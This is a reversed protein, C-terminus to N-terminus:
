EEEDEVLEFQDSILRANDGITKLERAIADVFTQVESNARAFEPVLAVEVVCRYDEWRLHDPISRSTGCPCDLFEYGFRRVVRMTGGCTSCGESYEGLPTPLLPTIATDPRPEDKKASGDLFGPCDNCWIALCAGGEPHESLDHGCRACKSVITTM